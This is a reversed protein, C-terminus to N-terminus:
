GRPVEEVPEWPGPDGSPRRRMVRGHHMPDGSERGSEISLRLREGHAEAAERSYKAFIGWKSTVGYEWDDDGPLAAELAEALRHVMGVPSDPTWSGRLDWSQVFERAEAILERAHKEDGAM